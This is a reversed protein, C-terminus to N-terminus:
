RHRYTQSGPWVDGCLLFYTIGAYTSSLTLLFESKVKKFHGSGKKDLYFEITVLNNYKLLKKLFLTGMELIFLYNVVIDFFYDLFRALITYINIQSDDNPTNGFYHYFIQM